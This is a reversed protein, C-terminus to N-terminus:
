SNIYVVHDANLEDCELSTGYIKLNKFGYYYLMARFYPTLDLGCFAQISHGNSAFLEFQFNM